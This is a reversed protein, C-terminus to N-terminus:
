YALVLITDKHILLTAKSLLSLTPLRSPTQSSKTPSRYLVKYGGKKELLSKDQMKSDNFATGLIEIVQTCGCLLYISNKM